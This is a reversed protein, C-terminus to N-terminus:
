DTFDYPTVLFDEYPRYEEMDMGDCEFSYNGCISQDFHYNDVQPRGQSENWPVVNWGIGPILMALGYAEYEWGTWVTRAQFTLKATKKTIRGTRKKDTVECRLLDRRWGDWDVVLWCSVRVDDWDSTLWKGWTKAIPHVKRLPEGHNGIMNRLEPYELFIADDLVEFFGYRADVANGYHDYGSGETPRGM